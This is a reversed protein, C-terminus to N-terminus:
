EDGRDTTPLVLRVPVAVLLAIPLGLPAMAVTLVTLALPWRAPLCLSEHCMGVLVVVVTYYGALLGVVIDSTVLVGARPRRM